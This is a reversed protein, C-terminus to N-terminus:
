MRGRGQPLDVVGTARDDRHSEDQGAPARSRARELRPVLTSVLCRAPASQDLDVQLATGM